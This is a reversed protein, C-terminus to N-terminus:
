IVHPLDPLFIENVLLPREEMYYLTRRAWLHDPANKLHASAVRYLTHQPLLKAVEVWGRRAKPDSFLVEGLPRSGLEALRRTDGELSSAPILTRAFVWPTKGCHLEVERIWASANPAMELAKCETALPTGWSQDLVQVSFRQACNRVVRRTLSGEDLLWDRM